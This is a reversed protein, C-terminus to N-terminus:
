GQSGSRLPSARLCFGPSPQRLCQGSQLWRRAERLRGVLAVESSSDLEAAAEGPAVQPGHGVSYGLEGFCELAASENLSMETM